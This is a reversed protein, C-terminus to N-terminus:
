PHDRDDNDRCAAELEPLTFVHWALFSWGGVFVAPGVCRYRDPPACHLWWALQRSLTPHCRRRYGRMEAYGFSALWSALLWYWIRRCRSDMAM